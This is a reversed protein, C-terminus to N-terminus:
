PLTEAKLNPKAEQVMELFDNAEARSEFYLVCPFCDKLQPVPSKWNARRFKAHIDEASDRKFDVLCIGCQMEGDDGYLANIPCGHRLWLLKRMELDSPSCNAAALGAGAKRENSM